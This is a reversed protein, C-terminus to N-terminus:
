DAPEVSALIPDGTVTFMVGKVMDKRYATFLKTTLLPVHYRKDTLHKLTKSVLENRKVPDLEQDQAMIMKDLEPDNVRNRNSAGIRSSLFSYGLVVPDIDAYFWFILEHTGQITQERVVDGDLMEINTKIGVEALQSQITECMRQFIPNAASALKFELRQGDKTRVNDPGLVWGAEELIAVAKAPDDSTQKSYEEDAENFGMMSPALGSYSPIAQGEYGVQIIEDHNVTYALAQRVADQKLIPNENNIGLYTLTTALGEIVELNPDAQAKELYQPAVRGIQAEGTELMAYSISEDALFRIVFDDFKSPGQVPIYPPSWNYDKNPVYSISSGQIIEVPKWMGTGVPNYAFGDAGIKEYAEKSAIPLWTLMYIIPAYPEKLTIEITYEDVVAVSEITDRADGGFPSALDEDMYMDFNWKVVEANFASGDQFKVDKRLHLTVHLNDPAIEWSDALYGTYGKFDPTVSLLYDYVAGHAYGAYITLFPDLSYFSDTSDLLTLTKKRAPAAETVVETAAETPAETKAAETAAPKPAETKPAETAQAPAPAAPAPACSTLVISILLMICLIFNAHKKTM